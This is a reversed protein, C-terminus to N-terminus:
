VLSRSHRTHERVAPPLLIFYFKGDVTGPYSSLRSIETDKFIEHTGWAGKRIVARPAIHLQEQNETLIRQTAGPICDIFKKVEGMLSSSARRGTSFVCIKIGPVGLLLAACLMAVAWTKGFRRPAMCLVCNDIKKLGISELVSAQVTPWEPGYIFPLAAQIYWQHFLRQEASREFGFSDLYKMVNQFRKHGQSNRNAVYPDTAADVRTRLRHMGDSKKQEEMVKEAMDAYREFLVPGPQMFVDAATLAPTRLTAWYSDPSAEKFLKPAADVRVQAFRLRSKEHGVRTILNAQQDYISDAGEPPDPDDLDWADKERKNDELLLKEWADHMSAFQSIEAEHHDRDDEPFVHM